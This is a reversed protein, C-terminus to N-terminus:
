LNSTTAGGLVHPIAAPMESRRDKAHVDNEARRYERGTRKDRKENEKGRKEQGTNGNEWVTRM